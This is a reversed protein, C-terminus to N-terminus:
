DEFIPCEKADIVMSYVPAKIKSRGKLCAMEAVVAYEVIHPTIPRVLDVVAGGTQGTKIFNSLIVVRDDKNLANEPLHYTQRDSAKSSFDGPINPHRRIMVFKVGLRDALCAGFIYGQSVIGAVATIKQDKYRNYLVDITKKFTKPNQLIAAIDYFRQGKHPFHHIIKLAKRIESANQISASAIHCMGFLTLLVRFIM